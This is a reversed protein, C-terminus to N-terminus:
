RKKYVGFLFDSEHSQLFKDEAEFLGFLIEEAQPNGDVFHHSIDKLVLQLLNGGYPKEEKVDFYKRVTERISESNVAESPDSLIMRLLGPRYIKNKTKGDFERKRFEEPITTLLKNAEELQEESWRFRNPGAYENIVLLGDPKLSIKLRELVSGVQEVHHLFSDFLIVDYSEPQPSFDNINAVFFNVAAGAEEAKKKAVAIRKEALDFADIRAVNEFKALAIEKDGTGCGPSLIASNESLYKENLYEFYHKNEDGTILKNWRKQVAPIEWWATRRMGTVSNWAAATRKGAQPFLRGFIKRTGFAKAYYFVEELDGFTILSKM